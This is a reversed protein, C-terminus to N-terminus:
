RQKWGSYKKRWTAPNSKTGSQGWLGVKNRRATAQLEKLKIVEKPAMNSEARFWAHGNQILYESVDLTDGVYVRSVERDFMDTYIPVIKLSKGKVIKRLSESAELSGPQRKTVYLSPREPADIGYLRVRYTTDPYLLSTDPWFRITPSDGDFCGIGTAPYTEVNKLLFVPKQRTLTCNSFSIVLLLYFLKKM